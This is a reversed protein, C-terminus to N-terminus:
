YESTFTAFSTFALFQYTEDFTSCKDCNILSGCFDNMLPDLLIGHFLINFDGFMVWPSTWIDNPFKWTSPSALSEYFQTSSFDYTREFNNNKFSSHNLFGQFCVVVITSYSYGSPDLIRYLPECIISKYNMTICVYHFNYLCAISFKLHFFAMSSFFTVNSALALQSTNSKGFPLFVIPHLHNYLTL